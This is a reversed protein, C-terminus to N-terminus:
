FFFIKIWQEQFFFDKIDRFSKNNVCFIFLSFNLFIKRDIDFISREKAYLILDDIEIFEDVQHCMDLDGPMTAGYSIFNKFAAM